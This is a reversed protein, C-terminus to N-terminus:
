QVKKLNTLNIATIVGNTIAMTHLKQNATFFKVAYEYLEDYNAITIKKSKAQKVSSPIAHTGTWQLQVASPMEKMTMKKSGDLPGLGQTYHNDSTPTTAELKRILRLIQIAFEARGECIDETGDTVPADTEWLDQEDVCLKKIAKIIETNM